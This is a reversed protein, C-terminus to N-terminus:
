YRRGHDVLRRDQVDLWDDGRGRQELPVDVKIMSLEYPTLKVKRRLEDLVQNQPVKTGAERLIELTTKILLDRRVHDEAM